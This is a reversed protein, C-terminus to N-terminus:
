FWLRVASRTNHFSVCNEVTSKQKVIYGHHSEEVKKYIGSTQLRKKAFVM